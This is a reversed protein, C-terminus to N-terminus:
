ICLTAVELMVLNQTGNSERATGSSISHAPKWQHYQFYSIPACEINLTGNRTTNCERM